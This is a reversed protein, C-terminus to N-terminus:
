RYILCGRTVNSSLFLWMSILVIYINSKQMEIAHRTSRPSLLMFLLKSILTYITTEAQRQTHTHTHTMKTQKQILIVNRAYRSKSPETQVLKLQQGRKAPLQLQRWYFATSKAQNPGCFYFLHEIRPLLAFFDKTYRSVIHVWALTKMHVLNLSMM